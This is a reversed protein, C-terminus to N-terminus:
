LTRRCMVRPRDIANGSEDGQIDAHRVRLLEMERSDIDSAQTCGVKLLLQLTAYMLPMGFLYKVATGGDMLVSSGLVATGFLIVLGNGALSLINIFLALLWFIHVRKRLAAMDQRRLFFRLIGLFILEVLGPGMRLLVWLLPFWWIVSYWVLVTQLGLLTATVVITMMIIVGFALLFRWLWGQLLLRKSGHTKCLDNSAKREWINDALARASVGPGTHGAFVSLLFYVLGLDWAEDVGLGQSPILALGALILGIMTTGASLGAQAYQDSQNLICQAFSDPLFTEEIFRDQCSAFDEYSIYLTSGITSWWFNFNRPYQTGPQPHDFYPTKLVLVVSVFVM